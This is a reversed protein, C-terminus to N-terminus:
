LDATGPPNVLVLVMGNEVRGKFRRLMDNEPELGDFGVMLVLGGDFTDQLLPSRLDEFSVGESRFASQIRGRGDIVGLRYERILEVAHILGASPLIVLRRRVTKKGDILVLQCEIRSRAEPMRIRCEASGMADFALPGQHVLTDAYGLQLGGNSGPKGNATVRLEAGGLVVAEFQAPAEGGIFLHLSTDPGAAARPPEGEAEAGFVLVSVAAAVLVTTRAHIELRGNHSM